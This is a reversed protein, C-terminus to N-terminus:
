QEVRYHLPRDFLVGQANVQFLAPANGNVSQPFGYTGAIGSGFTVKPSYPEATQDVQIQARRQDLRTLLVDPNQEAARALAQALTMTHVEAFALSSGLVVLFSLKM